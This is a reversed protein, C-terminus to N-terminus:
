ARKGGHRHARTLNYLMKEEIVDDVDLGGAAMMDLCRIIIDALETPIGHPELIGASVLARVEERSPQDPKHIFESSDSKLYRQFRAWKAALQDLVHDRPNVPLKDMDITYYTVALGRGHVWEKWAETAESHINAIVEGFNRGEEPWWGKEVATDHIDKAVLSFRGQYRWTIKPRVTDSM